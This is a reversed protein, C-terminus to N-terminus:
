QEYTVRGSDDILAIPAPEMGVPGGLISYVWLPDPNPPPSFTLRIDRVARGERAITRCGKVMAGYGPMRHFTWAMSARAPQARILLMLLLVSIIWARSHVRDISGFLMIAASPALVLFWYAQDLRGQWLSFVAVATIVPAASAVILAADRTLLVLLLGAAVLLVGFFQITAPAILIFDLSQTVLAASEVVRVSERPAEVVVAISHAIGSAGERSIRTSQILWPIQLLVIVGAVMGLRSAAVRWRRNVLPGLLVWAIAPAVVVVSTTHCQLALWGSGVVILAAAKSLPSRWLLAALAVKVFAVAVPPNWITSSLTADYGSTAVTLVILLATPLSQLRACLALFLIVDAVSQLSAVGIGGAHPLYDVFPGVVRAVCWLIWYYIPGITTGGVTSSVGSLPLSSLPRLAVQWDRMQDGGLNFSQTIDHTRFWVVYILLAIAAGIRAAAAGSVTADRGAVRASGAV